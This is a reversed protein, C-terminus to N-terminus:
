RRQCLERPYVLWSGVARHDEGCREARLAHIGRVDPFLLDRHRSGKRERRRVAGDHGGWQSRRQRIEDAVEARRQRRAHNGDTCLRAPDDYNRLQPRHRIGANARSRGDRRGRDPPHGHLSTCTSHRQEAAARVRWCRFCDEASIKSETMRNGGTQLENPTERTIRRNVTKDFISVAGSSSKLEVLKCITSGPRVGLFRFM